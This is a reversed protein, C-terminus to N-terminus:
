CIAILNNFIDEISNCQVLAGEIGIKSIPYSTDSGPVKIKAGNLTLNYELNNIFAVEVRDLYLSVKYINSIKTPIFMKLSDTTGISPNLSQPIASSDILIGNDKKIINIM